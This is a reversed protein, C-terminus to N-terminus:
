YKQNENVKNYQKSLMLLNIKFVTEKKDSAIRKCLNCLIFFFTKDFYIDNVYRIHLAYMKIQHSM